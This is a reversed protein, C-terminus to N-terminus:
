SKDAQYDKEGVNDYFENEEDEENMQIDANNMHQELEEMLADNDQETNVKIM